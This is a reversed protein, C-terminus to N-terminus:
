LSFVTLPSLQSQSVTDLDYYNYLLQPLSSGGTDKVTIKYQAYAYADRRRKRQKVKRVEPAKLSKRVNLM